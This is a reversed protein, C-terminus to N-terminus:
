GNADLAYPTSAAGCPSVTARFVCYAPTSPASGASTLQSSFSFNGDSGVFDCQDFIFNSVAITSAGINYEYPGFVCNVFKYYTSPIGSSSGGYKITVDATNRFHLHEADVFGRPILGSTIDGTGSIVAPASRTTGNTSLGCGYLSLTGGLALETGARFELYGTRPATTDGFTLTGTTTLKVGDAVILRGATIVKGGATTANAAVTVTHGSAIVFTDSDSPASGGVWTSGDSFNGSGTSTIEAAYSTSAFFLLFLIVYIKKM